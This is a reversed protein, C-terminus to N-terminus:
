NDSYQAYQESLTRQDYINDLYSDKNIVAEYVIRAHIESYKTESKYLIYSITRPFCNGSGKISIPAVIQPADNPIHHLAVMDLNHLEGQTITDNPQGTFPPLSHNHVYAVLEDFTTIASM